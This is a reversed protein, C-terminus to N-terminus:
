ASCRTVQAKRLTRLSNGGMMHFGILLRNLYPQFITLHLIHNKSVGDHALVLLVIIIM